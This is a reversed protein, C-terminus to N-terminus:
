FSISVKCKWCWSINCQNKFWYWIGRLVLMQKTVRDDDKTKKEWWNDYKTSLIDEKRITNFQKNHSNYPNLLL